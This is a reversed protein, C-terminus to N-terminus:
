EEAREIRCRYKRQGAPADKHYSVGVQLIEGGYGKLAAPYNRNKIQRIATEASGNWKLEIM